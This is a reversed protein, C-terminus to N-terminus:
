GSFAQAQSKGWAIYQTLISEVTGLPLIEDGVFQDNKLNKALVRETGDVTAVLILGFKDEVAGMGIADLHYIASLNRWSVPDQTYDCSFYQDYVERFLNASPALPFPNRRREPKIDRFQSAWGISGSMPIRDGWDGIPAKGFWFRFQVYLGSFGPYSVTEGIEIAFHNPDGFFM